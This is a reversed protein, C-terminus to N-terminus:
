MASSRAGKLRGFADFVGADGSASGSGAGVARAKNRRAGRGRELKEFRTGALAVEMAKEVDRRLERAADQDCFIPSLRYSLWLYLTLCRHFSELAQLTESSFAAAPRHRGQVGAAGAPGAAAAAAAADNVRQIADFVGADRGWDRMWIPEGRAYREVFDVLARVVRADRLNVPASAFTFRERFTLAGEEGEGSGAGVDAIHAAVDAFSASGTPRYHPKTRTIARSLAFIRSLPTSSPLLDFLAKFSEFPAGLSAQTVQVTPQSMADQLLPLDVADLTTAEGPPAPESSADAAATAPDLDLDPASPSVPVHM